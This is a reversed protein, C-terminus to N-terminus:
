VEQKGNKREEVLEILSHGTPATTLSMINSTRQGQQNITNSLGKRQIYIVVYM